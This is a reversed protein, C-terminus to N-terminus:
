RPFKFSVSLLRFGFVPQSHLATVAEGCYFPKAWSKTEKLKLVGLSCSLYIHVRSEVVASLRVQMTVLSMLRGQSVVHINRQLWVRAIGTVSRGEAKYSAGASGDHEGLGSPLTPTWVRGCVLVVCRRMRM